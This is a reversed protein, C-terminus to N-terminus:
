SILQHGSRAAKAALYRRNHSNFPTEIPVQGAVEIGAQTLGELKAPNNTLLLVRKCNLQYLMRAAVGYHREDDDFGLTTNADVTDLGADQLQYARMMNALGLGRGEQQPLYLRIGGRMAAIQKLAISLQDGCDCRRSRFADGTLCASHVRLPTPLSFDPAGIIGAISAEGILDRFVVFRTLIGSVLPVRAEGAISLSYARDDRFRTVAHAAIQVIPPDM